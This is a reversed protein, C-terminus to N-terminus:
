CSTSKRLVEYAKLMPEALDLSSIVGVLRRGELVLVHHVSNDRMLRAVEPLTTSAECTIVAPNMAQRTPLSSWAGGRALGFHILDTKTVVGALEGAEDVVPLTSIRHTEMQSAVDHLSTDLSTTIPPKMLDRARSFM